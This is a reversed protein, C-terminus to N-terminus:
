EGKRKLTFNMFHIGTEDDIVLSGGPALYKQLVSFPPLPQKEMASNISKFFPNRESQKQLGEKARDSTVLDYMFRMGEEPRDFSMMAPKTEGAIRQLKSSILKFDLEGGLSKSSDAATALVREYISPHDSILLYDEVIGFCTKPMPPPPQGNGPDFAPFTIAYYSTGGSTKSSIKDPFKKAIGDLVKQIIEGDKEKDKLKFALLTHASEMTVAPKEIWRLFTVRGDLSPVIQKQFDVDIRSGFNQLTQAFTGEGRFSDFMTEIAKLSTDFNWHFTLYSAIDGPVWREPKTVGPEFAIAKFVGTRPSSLLVHFHMMSDYQETDFLASGGLGGLGDLGLAPLMAVAIQVGTNTEAMNKMLGIPDFYWIFQPEEDKSGRCRSAIAGYNANEALSRADKKENWLDLVEKAIDIQNCIAIAADKEFVILNGNGGPPTEYISCKVEGITEERSVKLDRLANKLLKRANDIQSGAEFIFLVNPGREGANVIAFTIEGQPLAVIENLSLGVKDKVTEVLEGLSGYLTEIFPQMQPDQAMQGLNTNMFKQALEQVNPVSVMLVTNEPLLRAATPRAAYLPSAILTATVLVFLTSLLTKRNDLAQNLNM